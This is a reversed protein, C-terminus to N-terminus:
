IQQHGYGAAADDIMSATIVEAGAGVAASLAEHAAQLAWRLSLEWDTEYYHYLRDIVDDEALDSVAGGDVQIAIRHQLITRVQSPESLRPVRVTDTLFGRTGAIYEEMELYSDHAAVVVGCGREALM